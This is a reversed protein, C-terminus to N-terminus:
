GFVREAGSYVEEVKLAVAAIKRGVGKIWDLATKKRKTEKASQAQLEAM